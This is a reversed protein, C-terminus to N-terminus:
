LTRAPGRHRTPAIEAGVPWSLAVAVVVAIVLQAVRRHIPKPRTGSGPTPVRAPLFATM